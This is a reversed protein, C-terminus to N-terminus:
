PGVHWDGLLCGFIAYYLLGFGAVSLAMAVIVGPVQRLWRKYPLLKRGHSECGRLAAVLEGVSVALEPHAATFRGWEQEQWYRLRGPSHGQRAFKGYREDGLFTALAQRLAAAEAM